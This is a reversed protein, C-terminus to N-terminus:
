APQKSGGAIRRRTTAFKKWCRQKPSRGMSAMSGSLGWRSQGNKRAATQIGSITTSSRAVKKLKNQDAMHILMGAIARADATLVVVNRERFARQKEANSLPMPM